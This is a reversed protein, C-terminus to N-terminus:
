GQRHRGSDRQQNIVDMLALRKLTPMDALMRRWRKQQKKITERERYNEGLYSYDHLEFPQPYNMWLYEEVQYGGRVMVPYALERWHLEEYLKHKYGSIAVPCPLRLLTSLLEKHEEITNFEHKYLPKQHSRTEMLYPPDCYVFEKGTWEYSQLFSIADGHIITIGADDGGAGTSFHAIVEADIDIGINVIAPRKLRMIAGSGLFPEIYTTHPPIQNIIRQYVGSSNKGGKYRM